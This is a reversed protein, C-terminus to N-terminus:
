NIVWLNLIQFMLLTDIYIGPKNPEEYTRFGLFIHETFYFIDYPECSNYKQCMTFEWLGIFYLSLLTGLLLSGREAHGPSQDTRTPRFNQFQKERLPSSKSVSRRIKNLITSLIINDLYAHPMFNRHSLLWGDLIFRDKAAPFLASLSLGSGIKALLTFTKVTKFDTM